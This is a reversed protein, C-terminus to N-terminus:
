RDKARSDAGMHRTAEKRMREPFLCETANALLGRSYPRPRCAGCLGCVIRRLWGCRGNPRLVLSDLRRRRSERIREYTTSNTAVLWLHYVLFGSLTVAMIFTYFSLLAALSYRTLLLRLIDSWSPYRLIREGTLYSLFLRPRFAGRLEM